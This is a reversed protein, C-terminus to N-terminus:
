GGGIPPFLSVIDGDKLCTEKPLNKGNILSISVYNYDIDLREIIDGVTDGDKIKMTTEKDRGERLYAFVRVKINM